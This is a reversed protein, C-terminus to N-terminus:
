FLVLTLFNLFLVVVVSIALLILFLQTFTKNKIKTTLQM